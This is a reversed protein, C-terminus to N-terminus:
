VIQRDITDPLATIPRGTLLYGLTLIELTNSIEPITSLLRSILWTELHPICELIFRYSIRQSPCFRTTYPSLQEDQLRQHIKGKAGVFNTGHDSWHASPMGQCGIFRQVISIVVFTTRDPLLKLHVAKTATFSSGVEIWLSLTRISENEWFWRVHEVCWLNRVILLSYHFTHTLTTALM